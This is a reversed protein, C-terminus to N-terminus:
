LSHKLRTMDRRIAVKLAEYMMNEEPRETHGLIQIFMHARDMERIAPFGDRLKQLIDGVQKYDLHMGKYKEILDSVLDQDRPM